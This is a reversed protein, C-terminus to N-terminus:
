GGIDIDVAVLRLFQPRISISGRKAAGLIAGEPAPLELLKWLAAMAVDHPLGSTLHYSIIHNVKYQYPVNKACAQMCSNM